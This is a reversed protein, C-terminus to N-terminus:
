HAAVVRDRGGRKALYLAADARALLAAGDEGPLREAVGFSATVRIPAGDAAIVADQAIDRRIREAREVAADGGIGPLVLAFEEGGIRAAQGGRAGRELAAAVGKLVLDGAAHGHADNVRKFHDVDLVLLCLAGTEAALAAKFGRRNLLGTLADATAARRAEVLDRRLRGAERATEGLRLAAERSRRCLEETDTVLQAVQRRLAPPLTALGEGLEELRASYRAADEGAGDLLAGTEV